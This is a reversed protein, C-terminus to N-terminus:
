WNSSFNADEIDTLLTIFMTPQKFVYRKASVTLIYDQGVPLAPFRYYGFANTQAYVPATLQGGVLEVRVNGLGRGNPATVRGSITAEAATTAMPLLRALAFNAAGGLKAGFAAGATSSGAAVIKGDPQIAIDSVTEDSEDAFDVFKIGTQMGGKDTDGFTSDLTGNQNFRAVGFDGFSEFGVVIKRDMQVAVSNATGTGYFFLPLIVAGKDGFSNDLSGDSNYVAVALDEPAEVGSRANGSAVIKFAPLQGVEKGNLPPLATQILAIDHAEDYFGFDTTVVGDGGFSTDLAGNPLVRALAFDSYDSGAPSGEGGILIKNDPQILVSYAYDDFPGITITKVGDTDFTTDFAGAPTLRAVGFDRGFGSVIAEGVVVIGGDNQLAVNRASSSNGVVIIQIGDNDFTADLSGDPNLRVVAFANVSFDGATFGGVVVIKGDPQIAVGRARENSGDSLDGFDIIVTGGAGFTTDVSGNPNYRVVKIDSDKGNSSEGVAIIKGDQQLTVANARSPNAAATVVKGNTDFSPDLSGGPLQAMATAAGLSCLLFSAILPLKIKM